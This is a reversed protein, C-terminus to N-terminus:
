CVLHMEKENENHFKLIDNSSEIMKFDAPQEKDNIYYDTTAQVTPINHADHKQQISKLDHNLVYIHNNKVMAYFPKIHWNQKPPAYQYILKNFFSFIRAPISYEKFVKDM